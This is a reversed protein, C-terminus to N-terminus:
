ISLDNHRMALLQALILFILNSKGGGSRGIVLMHTTLMRPSIRWHVGSSPNEGITIEGPLENESVPNTARFPNPDVVALANQEGILDKLWERLESDDPNEILFRAIDQNQPHHLVGARTADNLIKELSGENGHSDPKNM